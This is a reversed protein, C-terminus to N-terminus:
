LIESCNIFRTRSFFFFYIDVLGKKLVYCKNLVSFVVLRRFLILFNTLTYYRITSLLIDVSGPRKMAFCSTILFHAFCYGGIVEATTKAAM